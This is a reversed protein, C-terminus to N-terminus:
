YKEEEDEKEEKDEKEDEDDDDDDDDDGLFAAFANASRRGTEELRDYVGLNEAIVEAARRAGMLNSADPGVRLTALGGVVYVPLGPAWSLDQGVIPLGGVVKVPWKTHLAKVLPIKLYDSCTGTGLVVRNVQVSRTSGDLEELAVHVTARDKGDTGLICKAAVVKAM